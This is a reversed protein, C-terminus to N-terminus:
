RLVPIPLPHGLIQGFAVDNTGKTINSAETVTDDRGVIYGPGVTIVDFTPKKGRIFNETFTLSIMKSAMYAEVVNGYPGM